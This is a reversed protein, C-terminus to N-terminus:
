QGKKIDDLENTKTDIINMIYKKCSSWKSVIITSGFGGLGAFLWKIYDLIAPKLKLIQDTGIVFMIGVLFTGVIVNWDGEWYKKWSFGENAKRYLNRLEPIKILFLDIGQGLIFMAICQIYLSTTM